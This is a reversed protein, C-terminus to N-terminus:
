CRLRTFYKRSLFYLDNFKIIHGRLKRDTTIQSCVNSQAVFVMVYVRYTQIKTQPLLPSTTKGESFDLIDLQCNSLYIDLDNIVQEKLREVLNLKLKICYPGFVSGGGCLFMLVTEDCSFFEKNNSCLYVLYLEVNLFPFTVSETYEM